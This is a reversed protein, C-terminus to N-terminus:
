KCPTHIYQVIKCLLCENLSNRVEKVTVNENFIYIDASIGEKVSTQVFFFLDIQKFPFISLKYVQGLENFYYGIAEEIHIIYYLM